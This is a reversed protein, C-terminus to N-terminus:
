GSSRIWRRRLGFLGLLGSALIALTGPEPIQAVLLDLSNATFSETFTILGADCSWKDTGDPTCATGNFSAGVFDGSKSGFSLISVYKSTGIPFQFSNFTDVDLISGTTKTTSLTALGAVALKSYNGSGPTGGIAIDLIGTGSYAGGNKTSTNTITFTGAKNSVTDFPRVTGNNLLPGAIKGTGTLTAGPNVTTTGAFTNVGMLAETGKNITLGTSGNGGSIGGSFIGSANTLTLTENNKLTVSGAGSLSAITTATGSLALTAGLNVTTTGSYNLAGTLTETGGAVTVGGTGNIGGSFTNSAKTLIVSNGGLNVTATNNSGALSTIKVDGTAKSIDFVGNKAITVSSSSAISGAGAIALTAGTNITTAGTYGNTGSLTETGGSVTLGGGTGSIGGAFMSGAASLTLTNAGLTVTGNGSLDKITANGAASIDFTGNDALTSSSAITGKSGLTLNAGQNVTTSGSYTNKGNFTVSGTTLPNGTTKDINTLTINGTGSTVGTFTSNNGAQNLTNTPTTGLTVAQGYSATQDLTLAGGNFTITDNKSGGGPLLVTALCVGASPPLVCTTPINITAAGASSPALALSLLALATPWRGCQVSRALATASLFHSRCQSLSTSAALSAKMFQEV